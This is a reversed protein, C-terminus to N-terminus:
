RSVGPPVLYLRSSCTMVMPLDGCFVILMGSLVISSSISFIYSSASVSSLSFLTELFCARIFMLSVGILVVM